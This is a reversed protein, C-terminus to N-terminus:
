LASNTATSPTASGTSPTVGTTTKMTKLGQMITRANERASRLSERGDRLEKRAAELQTKNAPYGEPTLASVTTVVSTAHTSAETIKTKMAALAAELTTTSNGTAKATAIRSELKVSLDTMKEVSELMADSAALLHIQPIFVAYIRYATVVFQTDVKLTEIDTDAVIKARLTTLSTIETQIKTTYTTKQASPLKKFNNVRVTLRNLSAIRRDIEKLARDRLKTLRVTQKDTAAGTTGTLTTRQPIAVSNQAYVSTEPAVVM